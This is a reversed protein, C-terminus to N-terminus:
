FFGCSTVLGIFRASVLPVRDPLYTGGSGEPVHGLKKLVDGCVDIQDLYVVTSIIHNEGQTFDDCRCCERCPNWSVVLVGCILYVSPFIGQIAKSSILAPVGVLFSGISDSADHSTTM